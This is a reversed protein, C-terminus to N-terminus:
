SRFTTFFSSIRFSDLRPTHRFCVFIQAFPIPWGLGKSSDGFECNDNFPFCIGRSRESHCSNPKPPQPISNITQNLNPEVVIYQMLFNGEDAICVLGAEDASIKVGANLEESLGVSTLLEIVKQRTDVDALATELGLIGSLFLIIFFIVKQKKM